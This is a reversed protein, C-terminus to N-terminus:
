VELVADAFAQPAEQPLNHGVGGGITRHEYRGTFQKAYVSPEVHPAGNADGELSISPVTIKPQTALRQEVEDYQPEGDALALRWRYNHVVIDVHDPNDFATASRDFTADDFTWQPSATHWILKNFDRRNKDYGERGRETAFYYQYWWALEAKPPLPARGSERGAILYGSVSVLGQCREPWLAAVVDATRAGWDFGALKASDIHLADMLAVLDLGMAAPEGNRVADDSLFRTTGYGRLYPVVVRYGAATLLPVVDVFSHIDYPWGHLLIAAPGDPPGADVYGVNLVGADIQRVDTFSGAGAVTM